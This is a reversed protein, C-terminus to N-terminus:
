GVKKYFSVLMKPRVKLKAALEKGLEAFTLRELVARPFMVCREVETGNEDKLVGIVPYYM